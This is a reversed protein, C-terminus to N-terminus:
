PRELEIRDDGLCYVVQNKGSFDDKVFEIQFDKSGIRNVVKLVNRFPPGLPVITASQQNELIKDLNKLETTKSFVEIAAQGPIIIVKIPEGTSLEYILVKGDLLNEHFWDRLRKGMPLSLQSNRLSKLLEFGILDVISFRRWIRKHSGTQWDQSRYHIMARPSMHTSSWYFTSIKSIGLEKTVHAVSMTKALLKSRVKLFPGVLRVAEDHKDVVHKM